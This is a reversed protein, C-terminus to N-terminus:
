VRPAVDRMIARLSSALEDLSRWPLSLMLEDLGAEVYARIDGAQEDPTGTLVGRQEGSAPRGPM